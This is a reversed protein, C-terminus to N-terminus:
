QDRQLSHDKKVLTDWLSWLLNQEGVGGSCYEALMAQDMKSLTDFRIGILVGDGSQRESRRQWVIKGSLNLLVVDNLLDLKFQALRGKLNKQQDAPPIGTIEVCMGSMSLDTAIGPYDLSKHGQQTAPCHIEVRTPLGYRMARRVTQWSRDCSDRNDSKSIEQLLTGIHPHKECVNRLVTKTIKVLEVQTVTRIETSTLTPLNLPFVDGFLDNPGLLVPEIDFGAREAEAACEPSPIECLTGSVIFYLQEAPEDLRTVLTGADWRVRVLRRMMAVLEAYSMRALFRQLPTQRGGEEHLLAYFARGQYHSPKQISWHLIKAVIAQLNMTKEIFLRSATAYFEAAEDFRKLEHLLDAYKRHLFPDDKYIRLIDEFEEPSSITLRGDMIRQMISFHHDDPQTVAIKM